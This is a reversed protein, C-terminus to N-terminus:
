YSHREWEIGFNLYLFTKTKKKLLDFNLMGARNSWKLLKELVLTTVVFLRNQPCIVKVNEKRLQLHRLLRRVSCARVLLGFSCGTVSVGPFISRLRWSAAAAASPRPSCLPWWIPDSASLGPFRRLLEPQHWRWRWLPVRAPPGWLLRQRDRLLTRLWVGATRRSRGPWRVVADFLM